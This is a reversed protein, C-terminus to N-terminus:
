LFAVACRSMKLVVFTSKISYGLTAAFNCEATKASRKM